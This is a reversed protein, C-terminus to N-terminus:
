QLTPASAHKEVDRPNKKSRARGARNGQGPTGVGCTRSRPYLLAILAEAKRTTLPLTEGRSRLEFGGLLRIELLLNGPKGRVLAATPQPHDRPESVANRRPM